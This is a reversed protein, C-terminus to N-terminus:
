IANQKGKIVFHKLCHIILTQLSISIHLKLFPEFMIKCQLPPMNRYQVSPHKDKSTCVLIFLEQITLIKRIKKKNTKNKNKNKTKYLELSSYSHKYNIFLWLLIHMINTVYDSTYLTNLSYTCYV